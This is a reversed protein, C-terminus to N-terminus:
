LGLSTHYRVCAHWESPYQAIHPSSAATLGAFDIM